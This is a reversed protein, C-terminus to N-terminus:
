LPMAAAHGNVKQTFKFIPVMGLKGPFKERRAL